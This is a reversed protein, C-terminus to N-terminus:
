IEQMVSSHPILVESKLDQKYLYFYQLMVKTLDLSYNSETPGGLLMMMELSRFTVAGASNVKFQEASPFGSGVILQLLTESLVETLMGKFM